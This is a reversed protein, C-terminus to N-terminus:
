FTRVWIRAVDAWDYFDMWLSDFESTTKAMEIEDVLDLHDRDDSYSDAEPHHCAIRQAAVIQPLQRIRCVIKDRKEEFSLDDNHFVDALDLTGIWGVGSWPRRTYINVM